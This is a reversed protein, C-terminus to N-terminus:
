KSIAVAKSHLLSHFHKCAFTFINLWTECLDNFYFVVAIFSHYLYSFLHFINRIYDDFMSLFM